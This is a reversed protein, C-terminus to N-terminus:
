KNLIKKLKDEIDNEKENNDIWEVGELFSNRKFGSISIGKDENLTLISLYNKNGEDIGADKICGTDLYLRNKHLFPHSVITHGHISLDAGSVPLSAIEDDEDIPFSEPKHILWNKILFDNKLTTIKNYDYGPIAAHSAVIHKNNFEIDLFLPFENKIRTFLKELFLDDHNLSWDGGYHHWDQIWDLNKNVHVDIGFDEHNGLTSIASPLGNKTKKADLFFLVSGLSDDGRDITDGMTIIVDQDSDYDLEKLALILLELQGHIDGCFFVNRYNSVKIKMM